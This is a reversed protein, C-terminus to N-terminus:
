VRAAGPIYSFPSYPNAYMQSASLAWDSLPQLFARQAEQWQYLM